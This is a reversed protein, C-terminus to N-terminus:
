LEEPNWKDVEAREFWLIRYKRTIVFWTVFAGIILLGIFGCVSGVVINIQRRTLRDKKNLSKVYARWEDTFTLLAPFIADAARTSNGTPTDYPFIIRGSPKDDDARQQCYAPRNLIKGAGPAKFMPGTLSTINVADLAERATEMTAGTGNLVHVLAGVITAVGAGYSVQAIYADTMLESYRAPFTLAPGLVPDVYDSGAAFLENLLTYSFLPRDEPSPTAATIFYIASGAYLRTRICKVFTLSNDNFGLVILDPKTEVIDDVFPDVYSCEKGSKIAELQAASSMQTNNAVLTLGLPGLSEEIIDSVIGGGSPESYIAVTKLGKPILPKICALSIDTLDGTLSYIGSANFFPTGPILSTLYPLAYDVANLVMVGEVQGLLGVEPCGENVPTVIADVGLSKIMYDYVILHNACAPGSNIVIPQLYTRTGNLLFGGAKNVTYEVFRLGKHALDHFYGSTSGTVNVFGFGVKLTPAGDPIPIAYPNPDPAFALPFPVQRKARGHGGFFEDIEQHNRVSSDLFVGAESLAKTVARSDYQSPGALCMAILLTCLVLVPNM